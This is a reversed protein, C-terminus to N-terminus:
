QCRVLTGDRRLRMREGRWEIRNGLFASLWVAVQLLDKLPAMWALSLPIGAQALRAQLNIAMGMRFLLCGVGLALVPTSPKVAM